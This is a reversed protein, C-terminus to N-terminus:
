GGDEDNMDILADEITYLMAWTCEALV